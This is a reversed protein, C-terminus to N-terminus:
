PNTDHRLKLTVSWEPNARSFTYVGSSLCPESGSEPQKHKPIYGYVARLSSLEEGPQLRTDSGVDALLLYREVQWCPGDMGEPSILIVDLDDDDPYVLGIPYDNFRKFPQPEASRNQLRFEILAPGESDFRSRRVHVTGEFVSPTPGETKVVSVSGQPPEPKRGFIPGQCGVSTTAAVLALVQRRDMPSSVFVRQLHKTGSVPYERSLLAGLM